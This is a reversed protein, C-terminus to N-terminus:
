VSKGDGRCRSKMEPSMSENITKKADDYRAGNYVKMDIRNKPLKKVLALELDGSKAKGGSLVDYAVDASVTDMFYTWSTADSCILAAVTADDFKPFKKILANAKDTDEKGWRMTWSDKCEKQYSAIKALIASVIKVVSKPDKAIKTVAIADDMPLMKDKNWSYVSHHDVEDLAYKVAEDESLRSLLKVRENPDKIYNELSHSEVAKLIKIIVKSDTIKESMGALKVIVAERDNDNIRGRM